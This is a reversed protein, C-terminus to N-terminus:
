APILREADRAIANLDRAADIRTWGLAGPDRRMQAALVDRTADSVDDIREDVRAARREFDAELWVGLFPAGCSKAITEITERDEPRDFVADVITPWPSAAARRAADFMRAYVKASIDSAYAEAPLRENPAVGFMKKRLRDSNVVRAGPPAGLRPALRAALSSKGSGSLGGIAVLRPAAPQLVEGALRFYSEAEDRRDQSASVHARITARLAMFFPLLPLGDAEDRQDLYRNLAANALEPERARWLDMLVFSLDYLVDITALEDSFELCDFPTPEGEFLCINRLTLDGHCLRTRGAARRKDLLARSVDLAARLRDFLAGIEAPSAAGAARASAENMAVVRSMADFGGRALDPAATEHLRAVRAALREIMDRTLRKSAALRDFLAEQDFRRMEVVGDVLEGLGDFALAGGAERTVRRAGLYLGPAARRNLAVERECLAFRREPASLDVYPFVVARKLKYARLECLVVISIHTAIVERAGGDLSSLFAITQDQAGFTM